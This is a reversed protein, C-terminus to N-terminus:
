AMHSNIAAIAGAEDESGGWGYTEGDADQFAWSYGVIEHRDFDGDEDEFEAIEAAIHLTSTGNDFVIGNGDIFQAVAGEATVEVGANDTTENAYDFPLAAAIEHITQM